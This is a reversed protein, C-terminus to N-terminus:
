LWIYIFQTDKKRRKEKEKRKKEKRKKKGKKKLFIIIFHGSGFLSGTLGSTTFCRSFL